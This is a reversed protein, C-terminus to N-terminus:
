RKEAEEGDAKTKGLNSQTTKWRMYSRVCPGIRLLETRMDTLDTKISDKEDLYTSVRDIMEIMRTFCVATAHLDIEDRM